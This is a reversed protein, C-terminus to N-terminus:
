AAAATAAFEAEADEIALYRAIAADRDTTLLLPKSVTGVSVRFVGTKPTYDLSKYACADRGAIEARTLCIEASLHTDIAEDVLASLPRIRNM